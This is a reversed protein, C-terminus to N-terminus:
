GASSATTTGANTKATNSCAASASGATATIPQQMLDATGTSTAGSLKTTAAACPQQPARQADAQQQPAVTGNADDSKHTILFSKIDNAVIEFWRWQETQPHFTTPINMSGYFLSLLVMKCIESVFDCVRSQKVSGANVPFGSQKNQVHDTLNMLVTATILLLNEVSLTRDVMPTNWKRSGYWCFGMLTCNCLTNM